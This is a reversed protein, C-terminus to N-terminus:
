KGQEFTHQYTTAPGSGYIPEFPGQQTCGPAPTNASNDQEGFAYKRLREFFELANRETKETTNRRRGTRLLGPREANGSQARRHRGLRCQSVHFNLLGQPSSGTPSRSRTPPTATPRPAVTSPPSRNPASRASPQAHLPDPRGPRRPPGRQDCRRRQGDRRHDRAQLPQPRHPDPQPQAPVPRGRAPLTPLRRAAAQPLGPLRQDLPRDGTAFGEFFGKAQPALRTLAVLTPSLQEAAPVLQRMLPDTNVAFKQLRELTLRSEDEFTPFARFLAELDRDREATTRFVDNSNRILDALQGERGRFADLAVAGDASSATSPSGSPTSPASSNTSNPSPRTSNGSPPPSTRAAATSRSRPRSCGNRSPPAPAPTSPASSRTSRSRAPSTQRRCPAATRSSPATATAPRSNSTPRPSCHRRACSRARTGRSRRTSTKSNSRRSRSSAPSANSTRSKASTSAPSGCTPSSPSSRPRTSPFASSM